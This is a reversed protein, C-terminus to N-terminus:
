HFPNEQTVSFRCLEEPVGKPPLGYSGGADRQKM